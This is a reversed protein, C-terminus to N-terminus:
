QSSFINVDQQPLSSLPAFFDLERIGVFGLVRVIKMKRKASFM